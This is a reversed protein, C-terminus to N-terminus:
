REAGQGAAFGEILGPAAQALVSKLTRRGRALLSELAEESIQMAAAADAQSLEQFHRLELALAQRAPLAAVAARVADASEGAIAAREAGPAGDPREPADEAPDEGRKRMRDYCLNIAIRIAWSELKARGPQWKHANRWVKLYTEQAVDEAEAEDRLLRRAVGHIKSLSAAAFRQLASEDGRAIARALAADGGPAAEPGDEDPRGGRIVRFVPRIAAEGAPQAHIDAAATVTAAASAGANM